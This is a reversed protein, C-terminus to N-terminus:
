GQRSFCDVTAFPPAGCDFCSNTKCDIAREILIAIVYVGIVFLCDSLILSLCLNYKFKHGSFVLPSLSNIDIKHM